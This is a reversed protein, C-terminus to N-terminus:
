KIEMGHIQASTRVWRAVLDAGHERVLQDVVNFGAIRRCQERTLEIPEAEVPPLQLGTQANVLLRAANTADIAAQVSEPTQEPFDHRILVAQERSDFYPKDLTVPSSRHQLIVAPIASRM